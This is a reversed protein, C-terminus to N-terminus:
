PYQKSKKWLEQMYELGKQQAFQINREPIAEANPYFAIAKSLSEERLLHLMPYPSRNTYNAADDEDAGAFIYLPHFSAIQYIGEYGKRLSQKETQKLFNLYASFHEYADPFIVLTTEIAPDNDLRKLEDLVIGSHLHLATGAVIIYHISNDLVAKNAFPCFGCGIVVQQVWQKTQQIIKQETEPM